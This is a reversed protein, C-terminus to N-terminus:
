KGKRLTKINGKKDYEVKNELEGNKYFWESKINGNPYYKKIFNRVGKSYNWIEKFSGDEFYKYMLGDRDGKIYNVNMKLSGSPYTERYEGIMIYENSKWTAKLENTEYYKEGYNPYVEEALNGNLHYKKYYKENTEFLSEYYLKGNTYYEKQIGNRIGKEITGEQRLNYVLSHSDDDYGEYFERVIGNALYYADEIIFPVEIHVKGSKYYERYIGTCSAEKLEITAHSCEEPQNLDPSLEKYYLGLNQKFLYKGKSNNSSAGLILGVDISNKM